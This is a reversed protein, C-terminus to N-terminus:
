GTRRPRVMTKPAAGPWGEGLLCFAPDWPLSAHVGDAAAREHFRPDGGAGRQSGRRSEGPVWFHRELHGIAGAVAMMVDIVRAKGILGIRHQLRRIGRHLIIAGQLLFQAGAAIHHHLGAGIAGIVAAQHVHQRLHTICGAGDTDDIGADGIGLQLAQMGGAGAAHADLEAQSIRHRLFFHHRQGFANGAHAPM